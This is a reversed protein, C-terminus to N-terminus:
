LLQCQSIPHRRDSHYLCNVNLRIWLWSVQVRGCRGCSVDLKFVVIRGICGVSADGSYGANCSCVRALSPAPLDTCTANGGCPSSLCANIDPFHSTVCVSSCSGQCGTSNFAKGPPCEFEVISFASYSCTQDNFCYCDNIRRDYVVLCDEGTPGTPSNDPNDSYWFARSLNVPTGAEAGYLWTFSGEEAMDSAGLWGSAFTSKLFAHEEETTVVALHGRVGRFTLTEAYAAADPWTM